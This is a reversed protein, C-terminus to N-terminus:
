RNREDVVRHRNVLGVAGKNNMTGHIWVIGPEETWQRGAVLGWDGGNWHLLQLGCGIPGALGGQPQLGNEPSPPSLCLCSIRPCFQNMSAMINESLGRHM